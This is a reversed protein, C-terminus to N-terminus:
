RARVRNYIGESQEAIVPWSFRAVSSRAAQALVRRRAPDNCLQLLVAALADPDGPPVLVGATESVVEPLGGLSSCVVPTGSSLAEAAVMGFMEYARTPMVCVDVARYVDALRSEPVAGLWTGGVTRISDTLPSSATNGFQGSPGAVLLEAGPYAGRVGRFAQVLVDSGKQECVRGISGIVVEDGYGFSRRAAERRELDPKFHDVNVGNHLVKFSSSPLGWWAAAGRACYESVPLLLDFSNLAQRYMARVPGGASGRYEYFDMSLLKPADIARLVAAGAWNGHVHVVDPAFSRLSPLARALLELDRAPRKTRCRVDVFSVDKLPDRLSDVDRGEPQLSFVCVRHGREAQASALELIRREVAGGLVFGVPLSTPGIHAIRM